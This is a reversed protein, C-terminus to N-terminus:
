APYSPGWVMSLTFIPTDTWHVFIEADMVRKLVHDCRLVFHELLSHDATRIRLTHIAPLVLNRVIECASPQLYDLELHTLFMLAAYYPAVVPDDSLCLWILRLSTLQPTSRFLASFENASADFDLARSRDGIHLTVLNGLFPASGWTVLMPSMRLHRLQPSGGSLMPPFHCINDVAQVWRQRSADGVGLDLRASILNPAAMTALLIHSCRNFVPTVSTFIRRVAFGVEILAHPAIRRESSKRRDEIPTNAFIFALTLPSQQSRILYRKLDRRRMLDHVVIRSWCQADGLVCFNWLRCVLRIAELADALATQLCSNTFAALPFPIFQLDFLPLRASLWVLALHEEFHVPGAFGGTKLRLALLPSDCSSATSAVHVAIFDQVVCASEYGLILSTLSPLVHTVGDVVSSTAFDSLLRFMSGSAESLDLTRVSTLLPIVLMTSPVHALRMSIISLEEIGSFLQACVLASAVDEMNTLRVRLSRLKPFDFHSALLGLSKDATFEIHLFTVSTSFIPARVRETIDSCSVGVLVLDTLNFSSSIVESFAAYDMPEVPPRAWRGISPFLRLVRLCGFGSTLFPLSASRIHLVTLASYDSTFWDLPQVPPNQFLDPLCTSRHHLTIRALLPAPVVACISNAALLFASRETGCCFSSMRCFHPRLCEMRQQLDSVGSETSGDYEDFYVYVRLLASRSRALTIHIAEVPQYFTVVVAAWYSPFDLLYRYWQSSILCLKVRLKLFQVFTLLPGGYVALMFIHSYIEM